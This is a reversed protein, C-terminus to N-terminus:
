TPLNILKTNVVTLSYHYHHTPSRVLWQQTIIHVLPCSFQKKKKNETSKPCGIEPSSPHNVHYVFHLFSPLCSWDEVQGWSMSPNSKKALDQAQVKTDSACSAKVPPLIKLSDKQTSSSLSSNLKLHENHLQNNAFQHM